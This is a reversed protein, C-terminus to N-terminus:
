VTMKSVFGLKEIRSEKPNENIPIALRKRLLVRQGLNNGKDTREVPASFVLWEFFGTYKLVYRTRIPPKAGLWVITKTKLEFDSGQKYIKGYEDECHIAKDAEFWLRDENPQLYTKRTKSEGLTGSGRVIIQGEGVQQSHTFTVRDFDSFPPNIKIRPTFTCDGPAAIGYFSVEKRINIGTLLGEMRQPSRFIYGELECLNCDVSRIRKRIADDQQGSYTDEVRCPCAVGVERIIVSYRDEILIDKYFYEFDIGLGGLTM